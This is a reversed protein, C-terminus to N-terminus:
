FSVLPNTLFFVSKVIVKQVAQVVNILLIGKEASHSATLHVTDM